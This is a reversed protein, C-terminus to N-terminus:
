NVGATFSANSLINLFPILDSPINQQSGDFIWHKHIKESKYEFYFNTTWTPPNGIPGSSMNLLSEPINDKFMDHINEYRVASLRRQFNGSYFSDADPNNDNIDEFLGLPEIKYVEVCAESGFCNSPSQYLGFILYEPHDSTEDEDKKVKCSSALFLSMGLIFGSLLLRNM